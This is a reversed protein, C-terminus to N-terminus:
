FTNVTSGRHGKKIEKLRDRFGDSPKQMGRGSHILPAGSVLQEIEPHSELYPDLESIKMFEEFEKKTKKDRFKYTPM